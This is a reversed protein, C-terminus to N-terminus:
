LFNVFMIKCLLLHQYLIVLFLVEGAIAVHIDTVYIITENWDKCYAVLEILM